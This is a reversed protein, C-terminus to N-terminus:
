KLWINFILPSAIKTLDKKVAYGRENEDVSSVLYVERLSPVSDYPSDRLFTAIAFCSDYMEVTSLVSVM